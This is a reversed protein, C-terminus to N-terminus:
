SPPTGEAPLLPGPPPPRRRPRRFCCTRCPRRRARNSPPRARSRRARSCRPRRRPLCKTTGTCAGRCPPCDLAGSGPPPPVDGPAPTRRSRRRRSPRIVRDRVGPRSSRIPTSSTRRNPVPDCTPTSRCRCTTSTSCGCRRARPVARVAEGDRARHHERRAGIMGCVFQMPNAFNRVLVGRDRRRVDPNYINYANAFANPAVHLVNELTM